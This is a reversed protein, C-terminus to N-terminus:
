GPIYQRALLSNETRQVRWFMWPDSRRLRNQWRSTALTLGDSWQITAVPAKPSIANFFLEAHDFRLCIPPATTESRWCQLFSRTKCMIVANSLYEM